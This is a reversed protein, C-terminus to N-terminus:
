ASERYAQSKGVREVKRFRTDLHQTRLTRSRLTSGHTERTVFCSRLSVAGRIPAIWDVTKERAHRKGLNVGLTFTVTEVNAFESMLDARRTLPEKRGGLDSFTRQNVYGQNAVSM